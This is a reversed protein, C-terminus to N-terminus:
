CGRPTITTNKSYPDLKLATPTRQFAKGLKAICYVRLAGPAHKLDVFSSGWDQYVSSFMFPLGATLRVPAEPAQRRWVTPTMFTNPLERM